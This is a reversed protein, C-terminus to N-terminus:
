NVAMVRWVASYADYFLTVTHGSLISLTTGTSLSIRNGAASGTNLHNITMNQTSGNVIALPLRTLLADATSYQDATTVVPALVGNLSFGAGTPTLVVLSAATWDMDNLNPTPNAQIASFQLLQSDM